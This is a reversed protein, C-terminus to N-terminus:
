AVRSSAKRESPLPRLEMPMAGRSHDFCVPRWVGDLPDWRERWAPRSCLTVRWCVAHAPEPTPKSPILERLDRLEELARIMRPRGVVQLLRVLLEPLLLEVLEAETKADGAVDHLLEELEGALPLRHAIM